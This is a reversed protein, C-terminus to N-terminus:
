RRNKITLTLWSIWPHSLSIFSLPIAALLVPLQYKLETFAVLLPHQLHYEDDAPERGKIVEIAFRKNKWKIEVDTTLVNATWAAASALWHVGCRPDPAQVLSPSVFLKEGEFLKDLPTKERAFVSLYASGGADDIKTVKPSVVVYSIKKEKLLAAIQPTHFGGCVIVRTLNSNPIQKSNLTQSKSILTEAMLASRIEAQEYFLNM